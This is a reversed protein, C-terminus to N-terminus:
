PYPPSTNRYSFFNVLDKTPDLVTKKIKLASDPALPYGERDKQSFFMSLSITLNPLSIATAQPHKHLLTNPQLRYPLTNHQTKSQVTTRHILHTPTRM